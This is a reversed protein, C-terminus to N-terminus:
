LAHILKRPCELGVERRALVLLCDRFKDGFEIRANHGRRPHLLDGHVHGLREDRIGALVEGVGLDTAVTEM